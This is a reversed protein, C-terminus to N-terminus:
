NKCLSEGIHNSCEESFATMTEKIHRRIITRILEDLKCLNDYERIVTYESISKIPMYM